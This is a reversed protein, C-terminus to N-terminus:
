FIDNRPAPPTVKIHPPLLLLDQISPLSGPRCLSHLSLDLLSPLCYFDSSM